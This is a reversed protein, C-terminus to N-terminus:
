RGGRREVVRSLQVVWFVGPSGCETLAARLVSTPGPTWGTVAGWGRWTVAGGGKDRNSQLTVAGGDM